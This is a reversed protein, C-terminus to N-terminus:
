ERHDDEDLVEQPTRIEIPGYGLKLNVANFARNRRLNVMHRFNWSLLVQVGHVVAIAVHLADLRSGVPLVADEIYADALDEAADTLPLIEPDVPFEALLDQVNQPAKALEDLTQDGLVPILRGGSFAEWLGRSAEEYLADRYGSVVSTDLYVRFPPIQLDIKEPGFGTAMKDDHAGASYRPTATGDTGDLPHGM